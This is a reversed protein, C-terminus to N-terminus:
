SKRINFNNPRDITYNNPKRTIKVEIDAALNKLRKFCLNRGSNIAPLDLCASLHLIFRAVREKQRLNVVM